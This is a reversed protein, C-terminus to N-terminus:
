ATKFITDMLAVLLAAAVSLGTFILALLTFDRTKM